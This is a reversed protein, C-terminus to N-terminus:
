PRSWDVSRCNPIRNFDSKNHTVVIFNHRIATAAILCDITGVRKTEPTMRNFIALDEEDFPLIQFKAHDIFIDLLFRYAHAYRGREENGKVARLAWQMNERVAVISTFLHEYPTSIVRQELLPYQGKNHFIGRLACSDLIYV